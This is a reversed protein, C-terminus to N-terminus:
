SQEKVLFTGHWLKVNRGWSGTISLGTRDFEGSYLWGKGTTNYLKAWTVQNSGHLCGLIEFDAILDRGHGM